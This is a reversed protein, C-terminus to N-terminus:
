VVDANAEIALLLPLYFASVKAHILVTSGAIRITMINKVALGDCNFFLFLFALKM